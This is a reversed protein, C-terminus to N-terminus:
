DVGVTTVYVSRIKAKVAASLNTWGPLYNEKVKVSGQADFAAADVKGPVPLITDAGIFDGAWRAKTSSRSYEFKM